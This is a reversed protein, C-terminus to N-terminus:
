TESRPQVGFTEYLIMDNRGREIRKDADRVVQIKSSQTGLRRVKSTHM